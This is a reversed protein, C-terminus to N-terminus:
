FATKRHFYSFRSIGQPLTVTQSNTRHSILKKKAFPTLIIKIWNESLIKNPVLKKRKKKIDNIYIYIHKIM